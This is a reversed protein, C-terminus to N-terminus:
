AYRCMSLAKVGVAKDGYVFCVKLQIMRKRFSEANDHQYPNFNLTTDQSTLMIMLPFFSGATFLVFVGVQQISQIPLRNLKAMWNNCADRFLLLTKSFTEEEINRKNRKKTLVQVKPKAYFIWVALAIGRFLAKGKLVQEPRPMFNGRMRHRWLPIRDNSKDYQQLLSNIKDKIEKRRVNEEKRKAENSANLPDGTAHQITSLKNKELFDTMDRTLIRFEGVFKDYHKDEKESRPATSQFHREDDQSATVSTKNNRKTTNLSGLETLEQKYAKNTEKAARM